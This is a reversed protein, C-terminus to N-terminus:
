EEINSLSKAIHAFAISVVELPFYSIYGANIKEPKQIPNLSVHETQKEDRTAKQPGDLATGLYSLVYQGAKKDKKKLYPIEQADFGYIEILFSGILNSIRKMKLQNVWQEIKVFDIKDGNTRLYLGLGALSKLDIGKNLLINVNDILKSLFTLTDVSTDISHIENFIIKNLKRNLYLNAFKKIPLQTFRNADKDKIRIGNEQQFDKTAAEIIYYPIATQDSKYTTALGSSIFDSVNCTEALRLTQKWKFDSMREVHDETNFAGSSLLRVFNRFVIRM